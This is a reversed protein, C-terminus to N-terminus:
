HITPSLDSNLPAPPSHTGHVPATLMTIILRLSFSIVQLLGASFCPVPSGLRVFAGGSRGIGPAISGGSIHSFVHFAGVLHKQYFCLADEM